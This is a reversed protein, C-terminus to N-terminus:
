IHKVYNYAKKYLKESDVYKIKDFNLVYKIKGPNFKMINSIGVIYNNIDDILKSEDQTELSIDCLLDLTYDYEGNSETMVKADIVGIYSRATDEIKLANFDNKNNRTLPLNDRVIYDTPWHFEQVKSNVMEIIESLTEEINDYNNLVIHAAPTEGEDKSYKPIVNCQKVNPHTNIVKIIEDPSFTFSKRTIVNKIRGHYYLFGDEDVSIYDGTHLYKKGDSHTIFIKENESAAKGAYGQTLGPGTLCLEGVINNGNIQNTTGPEVLIGHNRDGTIKGLAGIKHIGPATRVAAASFETAGYGQYAMAKSGNNKLYENIKIEVDDFGDGGFLYNEAKRMDTPRKILERAHSPTAFSYEPKYKKILDYYNKPEMEPTIIVCVNNCFAMHNTSEGYQVFQPITQVLSKGSDYRINDVQYSEVVQNLNENTIQVAKPVSSTGSTHMYYSVENPVYEHEKVEKISKGNEIFEEWKIENDLKIQPQPMKKSAIMKFMAPFSEIVSSSIIKIDTGKTAEKVNKRIPDDDLIFMYKSDLEEMYYKMEEATVNPYIFNAKAGIKSLAYDMYFMEPTNTQCMTVIDGEKVGYALLAKATKDIMHKFHLNTIKVDPYTRDFFEQKSEDVTPDNPVPITYTIIPRIPFLKLNDMLYRYKTKNINLKNEDAM